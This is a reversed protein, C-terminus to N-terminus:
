HSKNDMEMVDSGEGLSPFGDRHLIIKFNPVSVVKLGEEATPVMLNAILICM